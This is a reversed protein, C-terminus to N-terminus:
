GNGLSPSALTRQLTEHLILAANSQIRQLEGRLWATFAKVEPRQLSQETAVLWYAHRCDAVIASCPVLRRDFERVVGPLRGMAIGVGEAAADLAMQSTDVRFGRDIQPPPLGATQLWVAWDDKVSTTHILADCTFGAEPQVIADPSRVPILQETLLKEAILGEWAGSGLRIGLHFGGKELDLVDHSTDISLSLSPYLKQFGPLSPLLLHSAFTPVVTLRITDATKRSLLAADAATLLRLASAVAELYDRGSPTLALEGRRRAFLPSGLWDELAQIGHTVASPTVGLERAAAKFSGRRGAAEFLLLTSLPPLRYSM